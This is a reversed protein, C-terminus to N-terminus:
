GVAVLHSRTDRGKPKSAPATAARGGKIVRFRGCHTDGGVHQAVQPPTEAGGMKESGAPSAVEIRDGGYAAKNGGAKVLPNCGKSDIGVLGASRAADLSEGLTKWAM